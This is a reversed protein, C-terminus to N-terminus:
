MLEWEFTRFSDWWALLIPIVSAFAETKEKNASSISPEFAKNEARALLLSSKFAEISKKNKITVKRAAITLNSGFTHLLEKKQEITGTRIISSIESMLDFDRKADSLWDINSESAKSELLALEQRLEKQLNDFDANEEPSYDRSIRLSTLRKLKGEIVNKEQELNQKIAIADDIVDDKLKGINDICWASLEKSLALNKEMDDILQHELSREEIGNDPCHTRRKKHNICYYFVYSLFTPKEMKKIPMDCGPCRDRNLYSFKKKCSSCIVQLKFDTSVNGNCAGCKAFYNYVSRRSTVRPMGKTGLMDQIKWYEDESIMPEISTCEYRTREGSSAQFFFGAHIPDKLLTYMYSLAIPVGGTRRRQPTTLKLEDKAYIHLERVSYRGSLMMTLIKKVLPYRIPDKVWGRNGKEQSQDNLYGVHAVGNPLGRKARGELARKVVESKDDSDKKSMGFELQLMFKDSSNNYYTRSPTRIIKLKGEDMLWLLMGGDLPNRALRNPHWVLVANIKGSEISKILDTFIPRGIKHATQSEGPFKIGVILGERQIVSDTDRVQDPISQAQKDEAESSSKRYYVGYTIQGKM